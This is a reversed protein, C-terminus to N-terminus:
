LLPCRRIRCDGFPQYDPGSLPAMFRKLRKM